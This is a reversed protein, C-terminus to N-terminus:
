GKVSSGDNWGSPVDEDQNGATSQATKVAKRGPPLPSSNQNKCSLGVKGLIGLISAHFTAKGEPGNMYLGDYRESESNGYVLSHTADLLNPIQHEGIFIRNRFSRKCWLDSLIADGLSSLQPKLQLPDDKVSDFRLPRSLIIVKELCNHKLLATESLSFMKLTSAMVEERFKTLNIEPNVYTNLYTIEVTGGGLVM